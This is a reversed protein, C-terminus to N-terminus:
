RRGARRIMLGVAIWFIGFLIAFVGLVTTLAVLGIGPQVVIVIGFIVALGGTVLGWM